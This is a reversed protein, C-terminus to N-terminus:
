KYRKVHIRAYEDARAIQIQEIILRIILYIALLLVLM